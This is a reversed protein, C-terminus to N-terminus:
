KWNLYDRQRVVKVQARKAQGTLFPQLRGVLGPVLGALKAFVAALAPLVIELQKREIARKLILDTVQEVDLLPFSFLAAAEPQEVVRAVLPTKITAPEVVTVTIGFPKLEQAVSLSFGRVGFKSTSYLNLGAVPILGAVSGLNIIQGYRQKVMQRAAARTGFIVGKLNIDIMRDIDALETDQILGGVGYGAVNFVLDVRGWEQVASEVVVDWAAPDRVDLRHLRVREVPWGLERCATELGEENIDTAVVRCGERLLRDTLGRAIGSASGSIVAVKDM